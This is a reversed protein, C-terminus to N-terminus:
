QHQAQSLQTRLAFGLLPWIQDVANKRAIAQGIEPKYNAPDACASKGLVTFGNALVMVCITLLGLEDPQNFREYPTAPVGDSSLAGLVGDKATFYHESKIYAEVQDQTVRPAVAVEKLMDETIDM